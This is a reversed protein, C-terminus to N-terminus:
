RDDGDGRAQHRPGVPLAHALKLGLGWGNFHDLRIVLHPLAPLGAGFLFFFFFFFLMCVKSILTLRKIYRRGTRDPQFM